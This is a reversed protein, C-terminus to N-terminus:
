TRIWGGLSGNISTNPLASILSNSPLGPLSDICDDEGEVSTQMSVDEGSNEQQSGLHCGGSSGDTHKNLLSMRSFTKHCTPCSYKKTQLHTQLHARLNSKDAFSRTCYDCAFPKEGTHTRVHGQLLWPRSFSKGCTECKCPLTHTRIHMKLASLSTYGKACFKCSFSRQIQNTCHLQQHKAYGSQTSFGKRCERCQYPKSSAKSPPRSHNLLSPTRIPPRTVSVQDVSKSRPINDLNNQERNEISSPSIANTLLPTVQSIPVTTPNQFNSTSSTICSASSITQQMAQRRIPISPLNILNGMPLPHSLPLSRNISQNHHIERLVNNSNSINPLNQINTSISNMTSLQPVLSANRKNLIADINTSDALPSQRNFSLAPKASPRIPHQPLRIDSPLTNTHPLISGSSPINQPVKSADYSARSPLMMLSSATSLNPYPTQIVPSPTLQPLSMVDNPINMKNNESSAFGRGIPPSSLITRLNLMTPQLPPVPIPLSTNKQSQEKMQSSQFREINPFLFPKQEDPDLKTSLRHSPIPVSCLKNSASLDTPSNSLSLLAHAAAHDNDEPTSSAVASEQKISRQDKICLNQAVEMGDLSNEQVPVLEEKVYAHAPLPSKNSEVTDESTFAQDKLFKKWHRVPPSLRKTDTFPTAHENKPLSLNIACGTSSKPTSSDVGGISSELSLSLTSSSNSSPTLGRSLNSAATIPSIQNEESDIGSDNDVIDNDTTQLISNSSSSLISQTSSIPSIDKEKCAFEMAFSDFRFRKSSSLSTSCASMKSKPTIANEM